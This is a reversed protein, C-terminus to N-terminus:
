SGARSASATSARIGSRKPSAQPEIGSFLAENVKRSRRGRRQAGTPQRRSTASTRRRRSRDRRADGRRAHRHVCMVTATRRRHGAEIRGDRDHRAEPELQRTGRRRDSSPGDKRGSSRSRSAGRPASQDGGIGGGIDFDYRATLNRRRAQGADRRRGLSGAPQLLAGAATSRQRRVRHAPRRTSVAFRGIPATSARSRRSRAARPPCATSISTTPTTTRSPSATPSSCLDARRRAVVANREDFEGDTMAARRRANSGTDGVEVTWIHARRDPDVYDPQRQRSLRRRAIVRVDSAGARGPGAEEYRGATTTSTFAITRGDPSWAPVTAGRPLDTLARAEGGRM